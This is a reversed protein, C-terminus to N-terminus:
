RTGCCSSPSTPLSAHEYKELYAIVADAQKTDLMVDRANEGPALSPPQVKM